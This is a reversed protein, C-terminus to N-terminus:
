LGCPGSQHSQEFELRERVGQELRNKAMATLTNLHSDFRHRALDSDLRFTKPGSQGGKELRGIEIEIEYVKETCVMEGSPREERTGEECGDDEETDSAVYVVTPGTSVSLGGVDGVTGDNGGTDTTSTGPDVAEGSAAGTCREYAARAESASHLEDVREEWRTVNEQESTVRAHARELSARTSATIQALGESNVRGVPISHYNKGYETVYSGAAQELGTLEAELETVKARAEDLTARAESLSQEGLRLRAERSQWLEYLKSCDSASEDRTQMLLWAGLLVLLVGPGILAVAFPFGSGPDVQEDVATPENVMESPVSTSTTTTSPTTTTTSSTTTTSTTAAMLAECEASMADADCTAEASDVDFEMLFTGGAEVGALHELGPSKSVLDTLTHRGFQTLPVPIEVVGYMDLVGSGTVDGSAGSVYGTLTLGIYPDLGALLLVLIALSPAGGIPNSPSHDVAARSKVVAVGEQTMAPAPTVTLLIACAVLAVVASRTIPARSTHRGGIQKVDPDFSM